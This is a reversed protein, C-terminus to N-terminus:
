NSAIGSRAVAMSPDDSPLLFMAKIHTLRSRPVAKVSFECGKRSHTGHIGRGQMIESRACKRQQQRCAACRKGLGFRRRQDILLMAHEAMGPVRRKERRRKLLDRVTIAVHWVCAHHKLVLQSEAALGVPAVHCHRQRRIAAARQRGFVGMRQDLPNQTLLWGARKCVSTSHVSFRMRRVMWRSVNSRTLGMANTM